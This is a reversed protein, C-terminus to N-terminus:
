SDQRIAARVWCHISGDVAHRSKVWSAGLVSTLDATPGLGSTTVPGHPTSRANRRWLSPPPPVPQHSDTSYRIVTTRQARITTDAAAHAAPSREPTTVAGSGAAPLCLPAIMVSAHHWSRMICSSNAMCDACNWSARTRAAAVHARLPM